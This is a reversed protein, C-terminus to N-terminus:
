HGSPSLRRHDERHSRIHHPNTLRRPYTIITSPVRGQCHVSKNGIPKWRFITTGQNARNVSELSDRVVTTISFSKVNKNNKKLIQV